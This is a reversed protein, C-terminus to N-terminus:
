SLHRASACHANVPINAKELAVSIEEDTAREDVIISGVDVWEYLDFGNTTYDQKKARIVYFLEIKM